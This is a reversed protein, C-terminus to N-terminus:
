LLIPLEDAAEESQKAAASAVMEEVSEKTHNKWWPSLASGSINHWISFIM